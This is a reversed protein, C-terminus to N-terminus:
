QCRFYAEINSTTNCILNGLRSKPNADSQMNTLTYTLTTAVCQQAAGTVYMSVFGCLSKCLVVVCLAVCRSQSMAVPEAPMQDRQLNTFM